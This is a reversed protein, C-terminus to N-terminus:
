QIPNLSSQRKFHINKMHKKVTNMTIYLRAAIEKYSCGSRYLFWIEAERPTLRYMKVEASVADNQMSQHQDEITVLLYPQTREESTLWRVRIRFAGLNETNIESEIIITKDPFLEQSDILSQCVSWIVPPVFNLNSSGQNLEACIRHASTNASVVEGVETLILMADDISDIVTQLFNGESLKLQAKPKELEIEDQISALYIPYRSSTRLLIREQTSGTVLLQNRLVTLIESASTQTSSVVQLDQVPVGLIETLQGERFLALIQQLGEQSGELVLKVSGAEIKQLTLSTDGSIQRLHAIIAEALPKNLEDITASLILIYKAPEPNNKIDKKEIIVPTLHEPIDHLRIEICGFKFAKEIPHNAGLAKYFGVAFAIAAKDGIAQNMGIVYNIHKAIAQAQIKSYCANLIVCNVQKDVLEFLAALAEPKVPKLKGVEDECCLEGTNTGHGSFHVIHPEVDLIAQSIDGPRVNWRQELVFKERHKALQLKEQIDRLEQGLRLRSADSPDSALFLIKIPNDNNM